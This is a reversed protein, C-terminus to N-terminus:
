LRINLKKSWRNIAINTGLSGSTVAGEHGDNWLGPTVWNMLAYHETNASNSPEGPHWNTFPSTEGSVWQWNGESANDTFGIWFLATGGFTTVLPVVLM